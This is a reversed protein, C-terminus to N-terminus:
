LEMEILDRETLPEGYRNRQCAADRNTPTRIWREINTILNTAIKEDTYQQLLAAKVFPWKFHSNRRGTKTAKLHTKFHDKANDGRGIGKTHKCDPLPCLYPRSGSHKAMHRKMHESRDFGAECKRGTKEDTIPCVHPKKAQAKGAALSGSDWLAYARDEIDIDFAEGVWSRHAQRPRSRKAHRRRAPRQGRTAAGPTPSPHDAKVVHEWGDDDPYSYADEPTTCTTSEFSAFSATTSGFNTPFSERGGNPNSCAMSPHVINVYQDGPSLESPVVTTLGSAYASDMTSTFSATPTTDIHLGMASRYLEEHSIPGLSLQSPFLSSTLGPYQSQLSRSQSNWGDPQVDPWTVNVGMNGLGECLPLFGGRDVDRASSPSYSTDLMAHPHHHHYGATVQPTQSAQRWQQEFPPGFSLNHAPTAPQSLACAAGTGNYGGDSLNSYALSGRRSEHASPPPTLPGVCFPANTYQEPPMGTHVFLRSPTNDSMGYVDHLTQMSAHDLERLM